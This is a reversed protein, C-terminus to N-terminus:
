NIEKRSQQSDIGEYIAIAKIGFAMAINSLLCAALKQSQTMTSYYKDLFYFVCFTLFFLIGACFAATNAKKFFTSVMFSFAIVSLSYCFLFVYFLTPDTLSLVNGKETFKITLLLTYFLMAVALYILCKVFWSLWYVVNNLGMMKMSEKLLKEKEYAINKSIQLANLLFSLVIYLPLIFQLISVLPDKIYAPYPMRKLKMDFDKSFNVSGNFQEIITKDLIYQILLFDCFRYKPYETFSLTSFYEDRPGPQQSLGYTEATKWESYCDMRLSYEINHPLQPGDYNDGNFIVAISVNKDRQYEALLDDETSFGTTTFRRQISDAVSQCLKRTLNTVPTFVLRKQYDYPYALSIDSDSYTTSNSIKTSTGALRILVLLAAFFLPLLIEFVSVCVKRKQLVFNKWLLLIFQQGLSIM